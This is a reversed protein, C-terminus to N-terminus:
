FHVLYWEPRVRNKKQSSFLFPIHHCVTDLLASQNQHVSFLLAEPISHRTRVLCYKTLLIAVCNFLHNYVSTQFYYSLSVNRTTKARYEIHTHRVTQLLNVHLNLPWM